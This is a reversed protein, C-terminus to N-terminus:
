PIVADAREPILDIVFVFSGSSAFADRDVPSIAKEVPPPHATPVAKM